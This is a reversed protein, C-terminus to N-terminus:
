NTTESKHCSAPKHRLDKEDRLTKLKSELSLALM